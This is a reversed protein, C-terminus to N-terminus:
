FHDKIYSKVLEAGLTVFKSDSAKFGGGGMERDREEQRERHRQKEMEWEMDAQQADELERQKKKELKKDAQQEDEWKRRERVLNRYQEKKLETLMLYGPDDGEYDLEALLRAEEGRYDKHVSCYDHYYKWIEREIQLFRQLKDEDGLILIRCHSTIENISESATEFMITLVSLLDRLHDIMTDQGYHWVMTNTTFDDIMTYILNLSDNLSSLTAM